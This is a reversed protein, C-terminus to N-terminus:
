GRPCQSKPPAPGNCCWRSGRSTPAVRLPWGSGPRRGARLTTRKQALVALAQCTSGRGARPDVETQDAVTSRFRTQPRRAHQRFTGFILSGQDSLESQPPRGPRGRGRERGREGQPGFGVSAGVGRKSLVLRLPGFRKTRRFQWTM